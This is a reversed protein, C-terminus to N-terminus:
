SSPDIVRYNMSVYILDNNAAKLLGNPSYLATKEGIWFGGGHINVLVQTSGKKFHKFPAIVDLFLCDESQSQSSLAPPIM